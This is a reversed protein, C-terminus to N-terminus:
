AEDGTGSCCVVKDAVGVRTVGDRKRYLIGALDSMRPTLALKPGWAWCASVGCQRRGVASSCGVVVSALMLLRAKGSRNMDSRFMACKIIDTNNM